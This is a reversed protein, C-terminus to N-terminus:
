RPMSSRFPPAPIAGESRCCTAVSNPLCAAMSLSFRLALSAFDPPLGVLSSPAAPLFHVVFAPSPIAHNTACGLGRLIASGTQTGARVPLIESARTPRRAVRVLRTWSIKKGYRRDRPSSWRPEWPPRADSTTTSPMPKSNPPVRVGCHFCQIRQIAALGGRSSVDIIRLRSGM